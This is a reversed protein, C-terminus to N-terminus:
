QYAKIGLLEELDVIEFNLEQLAEIILPLAEITESKDENSHMLIIDGNRINSTVNHVINEAEKQSWDLTDISWLVISYGKQQSIKVVQENTAGYPPRIIAPEKGIVEMIAKGALDIEAKVEENSLTSLDTHHYSHSFILHGNEYANHVVQPYEKVKSGLFFFNGKVQYNELIDIIGQTVMEDPGDDFTLAIKRKDPGNIFMSEHEKAFLVIQKRWDQMSKWAAATLQNSNGEIDLFYSQKNVQSIVVTRKPNFVSIHDVTNGKKAIIIKLEYSNDLEYVYIDERDNNRIKVPVGFAAVIMSSTLEQLRDDYSRLDFVEGDRNFGITVKKSLYDAYYGFGAEAVKDPEGWEQKVKEIMTSGINFPIEAIRGQEANKFLNNLDLRGNINEESPKAIKNPQQNAKDKENTTHAACATLVLSFLLFLLWVGKKFHNM